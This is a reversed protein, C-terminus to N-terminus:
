QRIRISSRRGNIGDNGNPERDRLVAKKSNPELADKMSEGDISEFECNVRVKAGERAISWRMPIWKPDTYVIRVTPSSAGM